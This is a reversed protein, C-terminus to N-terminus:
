QNGDGDLYIAWWTKRTDGKEEEKQEWLSTDEAGQIGQSDAYSYKDSQTSVAVNFHGFKGRSTPRPPRAGGLPGSKRVM